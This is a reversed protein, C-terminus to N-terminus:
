ALKISFLAYSHTLLSQKVVGACGCMLLVNYVGGRGPKGEVGRGKGVFDEGNCQEACERGNCRWVQESGRKRPKAEVGRNKGVSDEGSYRAVGVCRKRCGGGM